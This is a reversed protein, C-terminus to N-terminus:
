LLAVGVCLLPVCLLAPEGLLARHPNPADQVRIVQVDICTRTVRACRIAIEEVVDALRIPPQHAVTVATRRGHGVDPIDTPDRIHPQVFASNGVDNWKFSERLDPSHRVVGRAPHIRTVEHDVSVLSIDRNALIRLAHGVDVEVADVALHGHVEYLCDTPVHVAEGAAFHLLRALCSHRLCHHAM